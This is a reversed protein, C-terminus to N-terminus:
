PLRSGNARSLVEEYIFTNGEFRTNTQLGLAAGAFRSHMAVESAREYSRKLNVTELGALLKHSNSDLAAIAEVDSWAECHNQEWFETM